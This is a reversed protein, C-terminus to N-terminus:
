RCVTYGKDATVKPAPVTVEKEPNVWYIKVGETIKGHEGDAFDVKVYNDPVEPKDDDPQPVVDDADKKWQATLTTDATITFTEGENYKKNDVSNLWGDFSYGEKTLDGKGLVSVAADKEYPSKSDTPVTGTGDGAAYTVIYKTEVKKAVLHTIKGTGDHGGATKSTM